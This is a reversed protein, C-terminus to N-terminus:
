ESLLRRLKRYEEETIEGRALREELVELARSHSHIRSNGHNEGHKGLLRALALIVAVLIFASLLAVLPYWWVM